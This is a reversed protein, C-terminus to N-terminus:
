LQTRSQQFMDFSSDSSSNINMQSSDEEVFQHARNKQPKSQQDYENIIAEKTEYPSYINKRRYLLIITFGILSILYFHSFIAFYSFTGGTEDCFIKKSSRLPCTFLSTTLSSSSTVIELYSKASFSSLFLDRSSTDDYLLFSEAATSILPIENQLIINLQNANKIISDIINIENISACNSIIIDRKVDFSSSILFSLNNILNKQTLSDKLEQNSQYLRESFTTINPLNIDELKNRIESNTKGFNVIDSINLLYYLNNSESNFVLEKDITSFGLSKYDPKGSYFNSAFETSELCLDSISCSISTTVIGIIGIVLSIIMSIPQNAIVFCRSYSNTMCLAVTQCIYFIVLLCFIIYVLYRMSKYYNNDTSFSPVAKQIDVNFYNDLLLPFSSFPEKFPINIYNSLVNQLNKGLPQVNQDNNENIENLSITMNNLSKIINNGSKLNIEKLYEFVINNCKQSIIKNNYLESISSSIESLLQNMQISLYDTQWLYKSNSGDTVLVALSGFSGSKKSFFQSSLSYYNNVFQSYSSKLNISANGIVEIIKPYDDIFLPTKLTGLIYYSFSVGLFLSFFGWWFIICFGPRSSKEPICCFVIFITLIFTIIFSIIGLIFVILQPYFQGMVFNLSNRKLESYSSTKPIQPLTEKGFIKIPDKGKM